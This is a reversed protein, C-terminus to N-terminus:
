SPSFDAPGLGPLHLLRLIAYDARFILGNVLPLQILVILILFGWRELAEYKSRLEPSLFFRFVRSGDLPPIPILNFIALVVNTVATGVIVEGALGYAARPAAVALGNWLLSCAIAILLNTTVGALSVLISDRPYVRLNRENVPVPRAAGFFFAGNSLWMLLLPFAISMWPDIHPIPNATLRGAMKATPDGCKLAVWGHAVEHAIVSFLFTVLLLVTTLSFV